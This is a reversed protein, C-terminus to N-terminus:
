RLKQVEPACPIAIGRRIFSAHTALVGKRNTSTPTLKRLTRCFTAVADENSSDQASVDANLNLLTEAMDWSLTVIAAMWPKRGGWVVNIDAGAAALMRLTEPAHSSLAERIVPKNNAGAANPDAKAALLVRTFDPNPMRVAFHLPTNGNEIRAMPDAGAALLLKLVEIDKAGFVFHIPRFGHIGAANASVGAALAKQVRLANGSQVDDVLGAVEPSSFYKTSELAHMSYSEDCSWVFIILLTLFQLLFGRILIMLPSFMAARTDGGALGARSEPYSDALIATVRDLFRERAMSEMQAEAIQLTM